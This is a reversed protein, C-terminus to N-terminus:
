GQFRSWYLNYREHAIRFWPMLDVHRGGDFGTARFALTPSAVREVGALLQSLDRSWRPLSVPQNLMEGSNRENVILDSGPTIGETGLRGALVLPGYLIAAHRDDGPLSELRLSMPLHVEVTDGSRFKRQLNFYRGPRRSTGAPRGNVTVALAACWGPHRIALTLQQPRPTRFVFRTHEQDPFATHQELTLGREAWELTSPVFLNVYLTHRGHAYIAEGYRAHNEIGSGTCCWFSDFPTHYLKVYGPRTAQFYTMMGTQPDQSALIGNYLAREFYDEYRVLASRAYLARTLRLMNHTCCTEMTKASPLHRAFEDRAFFLERDGHGGTAFSRDNVVASWFFEAARGFDRQGTLEHIRQFGIVKPIQTNAHLGDLTDRGAALPALLAQHSFRLALRHFRQEGTLGALDALVENMGGHERDLMRQLDADSVPAVATDIWDALALLVELAKRSGRIVHADRLGAMVKHTTYWPVGAFPRGALSDVLPAAGDPFAVLLGDGRERQCAALEDVIYDVRTAFRADGTAAFMCACATLYHGLTHGHCRIDVWPEQSEWGGYVPARPTLGSNLRFNHLLRDPELRLLYAADLQQADRFPGDLLRVDRLAFYDVAPALAPDSPAGGADRPTLCAAAGAGLIKLAQRRTHGPDM